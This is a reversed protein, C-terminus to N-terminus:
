KVSLLLELLLASRQVVVVLLAGLQEVLLFFLNVFLLFQKLSCLSVVVFSTHKSEAVEYVQVTELHASWRLHHDVELVFEGLDVLSAILLFLFCLSIQLARLLLQGLTDLLIGVEKFTYSIQAHSQLLLDFLKFARVLGDEHIFVVFFFALQLALALLVLFNQLLLSLVDVLDLVLDVKVLAFSAM